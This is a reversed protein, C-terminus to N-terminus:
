EAAIVDLEDIIDNISHFRLSAPNAILTDLAPTAFGAHLLEDRLPVADARLEEPAHPLVPAQQADEVFTQREIATRRIKLKGQLSRIAGVVGPALRTSQKLTALDRQLIEVIPVVDIADAQTLEAASAAVDNLAFEVDNVSSANVGVTVASGIANSLVDTALRLQSRIFPDAIKETAARLQFLAAQMLTIENM